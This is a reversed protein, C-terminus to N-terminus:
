RDFITEMEIEFGRDYQDHYPSIPPYRNNYREERASRQGKEFAKELAACENETMPLMEM